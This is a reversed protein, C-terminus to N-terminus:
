RPRQAVVARLAWRLGVSGDALVDIGPGSRLEAAVEAVGVGELGFLGLCFAALEGEDSARWHYTGEVVRVSGFGASRARDAVARDLFVGDHGTGNHRGVFGDLFTAQASGEAVDAVVLRGGPRLIRHCERFLRGHDAEHHVGAVSVVVDAAGDPLGTAHLEGFRADVGREVCQRHFARSTEVAVLSVGAPLHGALYGGGSPVDVLVEGAQPRALALVFAFEERRVEPWRQMADDYRGGRRDFQDRYGTVAM